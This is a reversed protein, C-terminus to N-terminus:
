GPSSYNVLIVEPIKSGDKCKMQPKDEPNLNYAGGGGGSRKWLYNHTLANKFDFMQSISPSLKFDIKSM